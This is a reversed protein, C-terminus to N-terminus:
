VKVHYLYADGAWDGSGSFLRSMHIAIERTRRDERAFFSSLTLIADDGPQRTDVVQVTSRKLLGTGLDVEGIVFPYRPRNGRPNEPVINGLWFLRGSSHRLLQSCSSPSFFPQGDDYTWPQPTTWRRGGDSSLAFWRYAPLEPKRDNSGRIVMLVRGDRLFEITAEDTGRTARAPDGKVVDTMEWELREGIWTGHIVAVDTYTYGGTPNYLKGDPGLPTLAVPLMLHGDPANVPVCPMDGLMVCNKGTWIGPLPHKANFEAGKQIVQGTAGFTHGGDSSVRYLINWQRLGELPNDSPLVGENWFEVYRGSRDVFGCRPHRRLMGEAQRIGTTVEQPDTWTRGYDHSRRLFAVDVTDSRTWRDEISIMDGGRKRTYFAYAMIATGKKPSALFVERRVAPAGFAPIAALFGRRSLPLPM